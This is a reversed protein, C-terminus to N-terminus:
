QVKRLEPVHENFGHTGHIAFRVRPGSDMRVHLWKTGVKVVTGFGEAPRVLPVECDACSRATTVVAVRQGEVCHWLRLM